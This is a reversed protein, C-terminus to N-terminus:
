RLRRLGSEMFLVMQACFKSLSPMLTMDLNEYFIYLPTILSLDLFTPATCLSRKRTM